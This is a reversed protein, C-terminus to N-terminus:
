RQWLRKEKYSKPHYQFDFAASRVPEERESLLTREICYISYISYLRFRNKELKGSFFKIFYSEATGFFAARGEACAFQM